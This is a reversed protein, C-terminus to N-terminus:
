FSGAIIAKTSSRTSRIRRRTAPIRKEGSRLEGQDANAVGSNLLEDLGSTDSGADDLAEMLMEVFDDVADLEADSDDAQSEAPDAFGHDGAQDFTEAENMLNRMGRDIGVSDGDHDSEAQDSVQV